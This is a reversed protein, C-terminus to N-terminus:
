VVPEFFAALSDGHRLVHDVFTLPLDKALTVLWLSLKALNM